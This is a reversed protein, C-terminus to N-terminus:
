GDAGVDSFGDVEYAFLHNWVEFLLCCVDLFPTMMRREWKKELLEVHRFHDSNWFHLSFVFVKYKRINSAIIASPMLKSSNKTM